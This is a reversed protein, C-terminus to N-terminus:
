SATKVKCINKVTVLYLERILMEVSEDLICIPESVTNTNDASVRAKGRFTIEYVAEYLNSM